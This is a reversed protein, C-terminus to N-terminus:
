QIKRYETVILQMADGLTSLRHQHSSMEQELASATLVGSDTLLYFIVEGRHPLPYTNTPRMQAQFEAATTVAAQAAKRISDHSQSGGLYGGGNSLYISAHGDSLAVVTASGTTVGWDMVVGWPIMPEPTPSLNFRSRTGQLIQARLGEYVDPRPTRVGQKARRARLLFSLGAVLLVALVVAILIKV